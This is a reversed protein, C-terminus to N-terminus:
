RPEFLYAFSPSRSVAQGTRSTERETSRGEVAPKVRCCLVLSERWQLAGPTMQSPLHASSEGCWGRLRILLVKELTMRKRPRALSM